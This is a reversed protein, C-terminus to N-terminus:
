CQAVAHYWDGHVPGHSKYWDWFRCKHVDRYHHQPRSMHTGNAQADRQFLMFPSNFADYAAWEALVTNKHCSGSPAQARSLGRPAQARASSWM